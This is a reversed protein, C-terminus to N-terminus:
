KRKFAYWRAKLKEDFGASTSCLVTHPFLRVKRERLLEFASEINHEYLPEPNSLQSAQHASHVFEILINFDIPDLRLRGAVEGLLYIEKDQLVGDVMAMGMMDLILSYVLDTTALRKEIPELRIPARRATAMVKERSKKSLKFFDMWRKLLRLEEPPLKGDAAAVAAIMLLYDRRRQWPYKCIDPPKTGRAM